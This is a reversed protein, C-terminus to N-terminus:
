VFRKEDDAIGFIWRGKEARASQPRVAASDFINIGARSFGAGM